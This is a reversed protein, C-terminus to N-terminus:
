RVGKSLNEQSGEIKEKGISPFYRSFLWPRRRGFVYRKVM